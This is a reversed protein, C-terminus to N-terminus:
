RMTVEKLLLGPDWSMKRLRLAQKGDPSLGVLMIVLALEALLSLSGLPSMAIGASVLWLM